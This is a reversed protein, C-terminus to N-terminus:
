LIRKYGEPLQTPDLQEALEKSSAPQLPLTQGEAIKDALQSMICKCGPSPFHEGMASWIDALSSDAVFQM